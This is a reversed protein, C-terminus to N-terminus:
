NHTSEILASLNITFFEESGITTTPKKRKELESAFGSFVVPTNNDLEQSLECPIYLEFSDITGPVHHRIVWHEFRSDYQLTGQKDEITIENNQKCPKIESDCGILVIILSLLYLSKM